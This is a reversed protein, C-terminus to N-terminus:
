QLGAGGGQVEWCYQVMEQMRIGQQQMTMIRATQMVGRGAAMKMTWCGCKHRSGQHLEAAAATSCLLHLTNRLERVLDSDAQQGAQQIGVARRLDRRRM